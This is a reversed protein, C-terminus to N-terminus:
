IVDSDGPWDDDMRAVTDQGDRRLMWWGAIIVLALAAVVAIWTITTATTDDSPEGGVVVPASPTTETVATDPLTTDPVTTEPPTTEPTSEALPDTTPAATFWAGASSPALAVSFLCVAVALTTAVRRRVHRDTRPM